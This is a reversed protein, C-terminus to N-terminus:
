NSYAATNFAIQLSQFDLLDLVSDGNEDFRDCCISEQGTLCEYFQGYDILEAVGNDMISLPSTNCPSILTGCQGEDDVHGAPCIGEGDASGLRTPPNHERFRVSFAATEVCATFELTAVEIPGHSGICISGPQAGVVYDVTGAETDVFEFVAVQFVENGAPQISEFRLASADYELFFQAACIPQDSDGMEVIVQVRRGVQVVGRFGPPSTVASAILCLDPNQAAWLPMAMGGLVMCVLANALRHAAFPHVKPKPSM